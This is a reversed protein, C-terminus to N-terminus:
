GLSKKQSQFVNIKKTMRKLPRLISAWDVMLIIEGAIAIEKQISQFQTSPIAPLSPCKHGTHKSLKLSFRDFTFLYILFNVYAEEKKGGAKCFDNKGFGYLRGSAGVALNHNYGTAIYTIKDETVKKSMQTLPTFKTAKDGGDWYDLGIGQIGGAFWINGDVDLLLTHCDGCTVMKFELKKNEPFEASDARYRNNTNGSGLQGNYGKGWTYVCTEGKNKMNALAVSHGPGCAIFFAQSM